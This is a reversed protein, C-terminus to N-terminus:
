DTISRYVVMQIEGNGGYVYNKRYGTQRIGYLPIDEPDHDSRNITIGDIEISYELRGYLTAILEAYYVTEVGDGDYQMYLEKDRYSQGTVGELASLYLKTHHVLLFVGTCFMIASFAMYILKTAHNMEGGTGIVAPLGATIEDHTM